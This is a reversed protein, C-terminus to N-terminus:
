LLQSYISYILKSVHLYYQMYILTKVLYSERLYEIDAYIEINLFKLM